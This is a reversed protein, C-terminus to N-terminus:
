YRRPDGSKDRGPHIEVDRLARDWSRALRAKEDPALSAARRLLDTFVPDDLVTRVQAEQLLMTTEKQKREQLEYTVPRPTDVRGLLFDASVNFFDALRELTEPDPRRRNREYMAITSQGMSLLRAMEAQSLAKEKRLAALREGLSKMIEQEVGLRIRYLPKDQWASLGALSM